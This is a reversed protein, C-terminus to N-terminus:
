EGIETSNCDYKQFASRTKDTDQKFSKLSVGVSNLLIWEGVYPLCHKEHDSGFGGKWTLKKVGLHWQQGNEGQLTRGKGETQLHHGLALSNQSCSGRCHQLNCPLPSTFHSSSLFFPLIVYDKHLVESILTKTWVFHIQLYISLNKTNDFIKWVEPPM